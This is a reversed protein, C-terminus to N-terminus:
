EQWTFVGQIKGMGQGEAENVRVDMVEFKVCMDDLLYELSKLYKKAEHPQGDDKPTLVFLVNKCTVNYPPLKSDFKGLFTKVHNLFKYMKPTVRGAPNFVSKNVPPWSNVTFTFSKETM